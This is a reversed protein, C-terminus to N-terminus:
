TGQLISSMGCYFNVQVMGTGCTVEGTLQQGDVYHYQSGYWVTFNGQEVADKLDRAGLAFDKVKNTLRETEEPDAACVFM